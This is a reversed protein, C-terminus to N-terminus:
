NAPNASSDSEKDGSNDEPKDAEDKKIEEKKDSEESDTKDAKEIPKEEEKKVVVEAPKEEVVPKEEEVAPKETAQPSGTSDTDPVVETETEPKVEPTVEPDAPPAPTEVVPTEDTPTPAVPDEITPAPDTVPAEVAPKEITEATEDEETKSPEYDESTPDNASLNSHGPTGYNNGESDWYTTDNCASDTCTHWNGSLTGDGPTDNREMSQNLTSNIGAPWTDGKAEDIVNGDNDKLILNGNSSNLLELSNNVEDVSVNLATNSSTEPYNAILLYGHAPISKSAPIQIKNNGSHKANEIEWQGIDILNNTTNKLEIWEDATSKSSGMWMIENIVVDGASVDDSNSVSVTITDTETHGALDKAELEITYDGDDGSTTDWDYLNLGVFSSAMSINGSDYVTTGSDKKIKLRYSKPYAEVVTGKVSVTGSVDDGDGPNTIDVAPDLIDVKLHESVANSTWNPNVNSVAYASFDWIGEPVSICAGPYSFSGTVDPHDGIFSYFITVDSITSSIYICPPPQYWGDDGDPDSISMTIEPIWYGATMTNGVSTATDMFFSNTGQIKGFSITLFLVGCVLGIKKLSNIIRRNIKSKGLKKFM